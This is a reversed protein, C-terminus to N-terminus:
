DPITTELHLRYHDFAETPAGFFSIKGDILLLAKTAWSKVLHQNHTAFVLIKSNDILSEQLSSGHQSSKEDLTSIWEDLLLIEAKPIVLFSWVLKAKMGASYTKVPLDLFDGLGCLKEIKELCGRAEQKSLGFLDCKFKANDWGSLAPKIGAALSIQPLVKGNIQMSGSSPTLQGALTRLLTTKGCGNEGILALRDGFNLRFCIDTLAKVEILSKAQQHIKKHSTEGLKQPRLFYSVNLNDVAVFVDEGSM